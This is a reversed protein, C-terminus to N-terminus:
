AILIGGDAVVVSGTIYASAPSILFLALRSIDDSEGRPPSCITPASYARSVPVTSRNLPTEPLLSM